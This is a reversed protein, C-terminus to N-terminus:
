AEVLTVELVTFAGAEGAGAPKPWDERLSALRVDRAPADDVDRFPITQADEWLTWLASRIQQGTRPDLAGARNVARPRAHVKFQWRRRAREADHEAWITTVFPPLGSVRTLTLRLLLAACEVDVAYGASALESSIGTAAGASTWTTGGDTSHEIALTWEGVQLGEPRALEVGVRRWRKSRDSAGGDLLPTVITFPSALTAATTTDDLDWATVAGSSITFTVLKGAGDAAPASLTNTGSAEDLLWWGSGNYGWLQHASTSVRPSISVLLWGNVVAAGSTAGGALGSPAWTERAEDLQVVQKGLWAFLRGQYVTLWNFDDEDQLQGSLTGWSTLRLTEPPAPPDVDQYWEGSLVHPGADTAVIMRSGLQAFGRIAGDLSWSREYTLSNGYFIHLTMPFSPTVLVIGRSFVGLLSAKVGAGLASATLTNSADDYRAVDAAAGYGIYLVDNLRALCTAGAALTARNVPASGAMRDWRYIATGAVISLGDGDSATLKPEGAGVTGSVPQGVPAPGIGATGLPWPAPWARSGALLGGGAAPQNLGGAFGRLRQREVRGGDAPEHFARYSGPVLMYGAGALTIDWDSM